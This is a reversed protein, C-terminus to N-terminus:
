KPIKYMIGCIFISIEIYQSILVACLRLRREESGNTSRVAALDITNEGSLIGMTHDGSVLTMCRQNAGPGPRKDQNTDRRKPRWQVLITIESLECTVIHLHTSRVLTYNRLTWSISPTIKNTEWMDSRTVLYNSLPPWTDPTRPYSCVRARVSVM